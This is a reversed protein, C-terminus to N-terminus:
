KKQFKKMLMYSAGLVARTKNYKVIMLWVNGNVRYVVAFIISDM